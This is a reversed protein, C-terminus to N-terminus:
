LALTPLRAVPCASAGAGLAVARAEAASLCPPLSPELPPSSRRVFPPSSPFVLVEPAAGGGGSGGPGSGSAASAAPAAPAASAASAARRSPSPPPSHSATRARSRQSLALHESVAEVQQRTRNTRTLFAAHGSLVLPPPPAAEVQQCIARKWSDLQRSDLAPGKGVSGPRRGASAARAAPLPTARGPEGAGGDGPTSAAPGIPLPSRPPRAWAAPAQAPPRAGAADTARPAARGRAVNSGKLQLVAAARDECMAAALAGADRCVDSDALVEPWPHGAGEGAPEEASARPEEPEEAAMAGGQSHVSRRLAGAVGGEVVRLGLGGAPAARQPSGGDGLYLPRRAAGRAAV